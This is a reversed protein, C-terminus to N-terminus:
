KQNKWIEYDYLFEFVCWGGCVKVIKEASPYAEAVARRNKYDEESCFWNNM